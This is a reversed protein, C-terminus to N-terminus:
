SPTDEEILAALVARVTARDYDKTADPLANFPVMDAHHKEEPLQCCLRHSVDLTGDAMM